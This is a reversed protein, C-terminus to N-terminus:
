VKCKEERIIDDNFWVVLPFGAKRVADWKLKDNPKQYGKVELYYFTGDPNWIKFDMLYNHINGDIGVYRFRDNTYEWKSIKKLEEWKDLILCTRYEYSGQIKIDKYSIWKTTGGTVKLNGNRFMQKRTASIKANVGANQLCLLSCYTKHGYFRNGCISCTKYKRSKEASKIFDGRSWARKLGDSIATTDVFSQSYKASCIKNCCKPSDHGGRVQFPVRCYLCTKTVIECKSSDYGCKKSCYFETQGMKRKYNIHKAKVVMPSNCFSCTMEIM